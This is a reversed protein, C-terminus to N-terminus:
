RYGFSKEKDVKKKAKIKKLKYSIMPDYKLFHLM